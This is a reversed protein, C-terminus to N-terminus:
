VVKSLLLGVQELFFFFFLYQWKKDYFNEAEKVYFFRGPKGWSLKSMCNQKALVCNQLADFDTILDIFKFLMSLNLHKNFKIHLEITAWM